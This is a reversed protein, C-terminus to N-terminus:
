RSGIREQALHNVFFSKESDITLSMRFDGGGIGLIGGFLFPKEEADSSNILYLVM